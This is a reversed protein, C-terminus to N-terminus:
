KLKFAFILFLNIKIVDNGIVKAANELQRLLEDLRRM